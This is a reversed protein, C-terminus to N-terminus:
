SKILGNETMGGFAPALGPKAAEIQAFVQDQGWLPFRMLYHM